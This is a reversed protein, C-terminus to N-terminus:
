VAGRWKMATPAHYRSKVWVVSSWTTARSSAAAARRSRRPSCAQRIGFSPTGWGSLAPPPSGPESRPVPPHRIPSDGVRISRTPSEGTRFSRALRCGDPHANTPTPYNPANHVDTQRAFLLPQSLGGGLQGVVESGAGDAVQ